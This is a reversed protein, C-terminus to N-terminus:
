DSHHTFHVSNSPKVKVSKAKEKAFKAAKKAKKKAAKTKSAASAIANHDNSKVKGNAQKLLRNAYRQHARGLALKIAVESDFKDQPDKRSTGHALVEGTKNEFLTAIAAEETVVVEEGFLNIESLFKKKM